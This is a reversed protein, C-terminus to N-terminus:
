PFKKNLKAEWVFYQVLLLFLQVFTNDNNFGFWSQEPFQIGSLMDDKIVRHIKEVTPCKLFLHEFTEDDFPGLEKGIISCFTCWRSGESFHSTRTNTGLRNHFFKFFFERVKNPIGNFTWLALSKDFNTLETKNQIGAAACFSNFVSETILNNASSLVTRLKKSGKKFGFLFKSLPESKGNPKIFKAVATNLIGVLRIYTTFSLNLNFRGNLEAYPLIKNQALFDRVKLGALVSLNTIGNQLWFKTNINYPFGHAVDVCPNNLLFSEKFNDDKTNFALLFQRYNLVLEYLIPNKRPCLLAPDPSLCNGSGCMWLDWRWNDRSSGAARKFWISQQAILTHKLNILGLGGRAPHLYLKDNSIRLTGTCFNNVLSQMWDLMEEKPMLICGLYNVQSLLFCNAIKIRGPLSLYFRQWFNVIKQMKEKAKGFNKQLGKLDSDIEIGLLSISDTVTFKTKIKDTGTKDGV